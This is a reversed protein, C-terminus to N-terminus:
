PPDNCCGGSSTFNDSLESCMKYRQNSCSYVSQLQQDSSVMGMRKRELYSHHVISKPPLSLPKEESNITTIIHHHNLSKEFKKNLKNNSRTKTSTTKTPEYGPSPSKEETQNKESLLDVVGVASTNLVKLGRVHIEHELTNETSTSDDINSSNNNNNHSSFSSSNHIDVHQNFHNGRTEDNLFRDEEVLIQLATWITGDGRSRLAYRIVRSFHLRIEELFQEVSPPEDLLQIKALTRLFYETMNSRANRSSYTGRFLSERVKRQKEVSWYFTKFIAKFETFNKYRYHFARAFTKAEGKLCSMVLNLQQRPTGGYYSVYDDLDRLFQLPHIDTSKGSFSPKMLPIIRGGHNFNYNPVIQQFGLLNMTLNQNLQNVLQYQIRYFENQLKYFEDFMKALESILVMSNRTNDCHVM